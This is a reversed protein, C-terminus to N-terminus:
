IEFKFKPDGRNASAAEVMNRDILRNIWQLVTRKAIGLNDGTLCRRAISRRPIVIRDRGEIRTFNLM